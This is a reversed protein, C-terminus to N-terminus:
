VAVLAMPSEPEPEAGDSDRDPRAHGARLMALYDTLMIMAEDPHLRWIQVPVLPLLDGLRILREDEPGDRRSARAARAHQAALGAQRTRHSAYRAHPWIVALENQQM